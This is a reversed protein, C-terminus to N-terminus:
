PRLDLMKPGAGNRADQPPSAAPAFGLRNIRRRSCPRSFARALRVNAAGRLSRAHFADNRVFLEGVDADEDADDGAEADRAQEGAKGTEDLVRVVFLDIGDVQAPGEVQQQ